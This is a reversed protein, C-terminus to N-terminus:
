SSFIKEERQTVELKAQLLFSFQPKKEKGQFLSAALKLKLHKLFLHSNFNEKKISGISYIKQILLYLSRYNKKLSLRYFKCVILTSVIQVESCTDRFM